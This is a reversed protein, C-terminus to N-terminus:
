LKRAARARLKHATIAAWILGGAVMTTVALRSALNSRLSIWGIILNAYIGLQISGYVILGVWLVADGVVEASPQDAERAASFLTISHIRFAGLSQRWYWWIGRDDYQEMLDGIFSDRRYDPACRMLIWTALRKSM